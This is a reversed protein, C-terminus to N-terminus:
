NKNRRKRTKRGGKYNNKLSSNNKKNITNNNSSALNVPEAEADIINNTVLNATVATYNNIIENIKDELLALRCNGQTYDYLRSNNSQYEQTLAALVEEYNKEFGKGSDNKESFTFIKDKIDTFDSL